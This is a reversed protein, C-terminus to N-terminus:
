NPERGGALARAAAQGLVESTFPKQILGVISPNNRRLGVQRDAYGTILLIPLDGRIASIMSALQEGTLHPMTLDSIVLDFAAPDRRCAELAAQGDSFPTVAHGKGELFAKAILVIEEEDDVLLIRGPGSDGARETASSPAQRECSPLYITVITGHGPESEVTVTGGHASVIGHVVSMGLGTGKGVEKTTFFPDFLRKMTAPDMGCGTDAVRIVALDRGKLEAPVTAPTRGGGTSTLTIELHGGSGEMAHFANTALNLLVQQIQSPETLVPPCSPDLDATISITAPISRRLLEITEGVIGQLTVLRHEQSEAHGVMQIRQVLDRGREAARLVKDIDGALTSGEAADERAMAAFGMIAQLINNFDHSIGGALAGLAEMKQAQIIQLERAQGLVLSNLIPALYAALFSILDRDEVTFHGSRRALTIVGLVGDRGIIPVALLSTCGMGCLTAQPGGIVARRSDIAAAVDPSLRDRELMRPVVPPYDGTAQDRCQIAMVQLNGAKDFIGFFGALCGVAVCLSEITGQYLDPGTRTLFIEAIRNRAEFTRRREEARRAGRERKKLDVALLFGIGLILVTMALRMVLDHAGPHLLGETFAGMGFVFSDLAVEGIWFGAVLSATLLALHRYSRM